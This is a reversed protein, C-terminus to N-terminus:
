DAFGGATIENREDEELLDDQFFLVDSLIGPIIRGEYLPWALEAGAQLRYNDGTSFYDEYEAQVSLKGDAAASESFLPQVLKLGYVCFASGEADPTKPVNDNYGTSFELSTDLASAPKVPILCVFATLMVCIVTKCVSNM